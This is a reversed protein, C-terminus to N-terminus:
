GQLILLKRIEVPPLGYRIGEVINIVNELEIEMQTMYAVLTVAPNVSYRLLKRSVREQERLILSEIYDTDPVGDRAFRSNRLVEALGAEDPADTISDILKESVTKYPLLASRIYQPESKFFHRLRYASAINEVDIRNMFIERLERAASGSFQKDILTLVRNYYYIKLDRECFVMDLQNKGADSRPPHQLLIKGYPTGELVKVLTSFDRCKVMEAIDYSCYRPLHKSYHFFYEGESGAGIYRLLKIIQEVEDWIFLYQYFGAQKSFAYRTLATYNDYRADRLREELQGRHINDTDMGGLLEGYHTSDRLYVAVEGVNIKKIMEDYASSSLRRAYMARAKAAIAKSSFRELM